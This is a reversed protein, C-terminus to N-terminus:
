PVIEAQESHRSRWATPTVGTIRRFERNFNSKTQFGAQEMIAIVPEDSETLLRAAARIRWGNVYHSVSQRHVANIAASVQRAPIGAKRALMLLSLDARQYLGQQMLAEVAALIARDQSADRGDSATQIPDEARSVTPPAVACGPESGTATEPVPSAAPALVLLLSFLGCILLTGAALVGGTGAGGAFGYLLAVTTDLLAVAVLLWAAIRWGRVTLASRSFAVRQFADSGHRLSRLMAAACGLWVAPLLWDIAQPLWLQVALMAIPLGGVQLYRPRQGTAQALAACCLLPLLTATLPLLPRWGHHGALTVLGANMSHILCVLLLARWLWGAQWRQLLLQMCVLTLLFNLPILM